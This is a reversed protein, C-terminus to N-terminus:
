VAFASITPTANSSNVKITATNGGATKWQLKVTEQDADCLCSMAIGTYQTTVPPDEVTYVLVTTDKVLAFYLGDSVDVTIAAFVNCLCDLTGGTNPLQLSMGSVDTLSTATTTRNGGSSIITQATSAGGGGGSSFAGLINCSGL